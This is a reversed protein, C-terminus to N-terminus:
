ISYFSTAIRVHRLLELIVVVRDTIPVTQPKPEQLCQITVENCNFAHVVLQPQQVAHWRGIAQERQELSLRLM